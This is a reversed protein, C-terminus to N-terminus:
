KLQKDIIKIGKDNLIYKPLIQKNHSKFAAFKYGRHKLSDIVKKEPWWHYANADSYFMLEVDEFSKCNLIIYNKIITDPINNYIQTNNIKAERIENSENRYKEINWPKLSYIAIFIIFLMFFYKYIKKNFFKQTLINIFSLFKMIGYSVLIIILSSVPYTFAPMKTAVIISFFAYLVVIISVFSISLTLDVKKDFFISVLGLIFFPILYFGYATQMFELYFWASGSHGGLVKTIHDWNQGFSAAAEIPFNSKIYLQWPLFLLFAVLISIFINFYQRKGNRLKKNIIINIGWAGYILLGPLWKNLVAASVFIGLIIAWKISFNNKYYKVFAWISATVYFAFAVDNHDLSFRGTTLELQYISFAFLLSSLFSVYKDKTWFRSIEYIFFISITGMIVSPLRLAIENVGFLKMSMAMQWLFLPQKHVWIHNCCWSAPNYDIIPFLRLMPKFPHTIMHKAVLAHFREDWSHLFPDLSALYLRLLFASLILLFLSFKEKGKIFFIVAIFAPISFIILNFSINNTIGLSM